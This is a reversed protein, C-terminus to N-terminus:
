AVRSREWQLGEKSIKTLLSLATMIEESSLFDGLVYGKKTKKIAYKVRAILLKDALTM